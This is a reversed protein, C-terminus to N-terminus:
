PRVAGVFPMSYLSTVRVGVSPNAADVIRGGGIYMGVHSIPSYYFVLDGPQLQSAPIHRGSNYQAGSQHPLYVGVSRYAAMTLGSCDYASPGTAAYVYRKGVQALAFAVAGAARGSVPTSHGYSPTGGGGGNGGNGRSDRSVRAAEAARRADAASAERAAAQRAELKRREEAKLSALLRQAEAVKVDIAAKKAAMDSRIAELTAAQQKAILKDAALQQTAVAVKHMVDSQRRAIGDLDSAQELFTGPDDALLLAFSQDLGGSRYAAAAFGGVAKQLTALQAESRHVKANVKDLQQQATDAELKAGLYAETAVEADDQLAAVRMEVESVTPQPDAQSIAPALTLACVVAALAALSRRVAASHRTAM